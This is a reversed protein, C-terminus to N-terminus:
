IFFIGLFITKIFINYLIIHQMIKIVQSMFEYAVSEHNSFKVQSICLAGQLYLRLSLEPYEARALAAITGHCFQLIKQCKKDWM